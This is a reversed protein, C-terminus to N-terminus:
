DKEKEAADLIREVDKIIADIADMTYIRYADMETLPRTINHTCLAIKEVILHDNEMLVKILNKDYLDSPSRCVVIVIGYEISYDGINHRDVDIDIDRLKASIVNLLVGVVEEDCASHVLFNLVM